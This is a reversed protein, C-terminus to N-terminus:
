DIGESIEAIFDSWKESLIIKTEIDLEVRARDLDGKNFEWINSCKDNLLDDVVKPHFECNIAQAIVEGIFMTNSVLSNFYITIVPDISRWLRFCDIQYSIANTTDMISNYTFRSKNQSRDINSADLLSLAIELPNRFTSIAYANGDMIYDRIKCTPRRHLKIPIYDNSHLSRDNYIDTLLGDIDENDGVFLGNSTSRYKRLNIVSNVRGSRINSKLLGLVIQTAFSSASKTMGHCFVVKPM